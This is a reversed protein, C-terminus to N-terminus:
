CDNEFQSIPLLVSVAGSYYRPLLILYYVCTVNYIWYFIIFLAFSLGVPDKVIRIRGLLPLCFSWSAQDPTLWVDNGLLPPRFGYDLLLPMPPRQFDNFNIKVDEKANFDHGYSQQPQGFRPGLSGESMIM